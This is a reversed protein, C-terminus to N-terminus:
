IMLLGEAKKGLSPCSWTVEACVPTMLFSTLLHVTPSLVGGGGCVWVLAAGSLMSMCRDAKKGRVNRRGTWEVQIESYNDM